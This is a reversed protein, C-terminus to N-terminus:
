RFMVFRHLVGPRVGFLGIVLPAHRKAEEDIGFLLLLIWEFHKAVHLAFVRPMGRKFVVGEIGPDHVADILADIVTGAGGEVHGFSSLSSHVLVAAGEGLGLARLGRLIERRTVVTM